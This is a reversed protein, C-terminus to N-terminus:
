SDHHYTLDSLDDFGEVDRWLTADFLDSVPAAM